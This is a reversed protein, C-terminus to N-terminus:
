NDQMDVRWADSESVFGIGERQQGGEVMPADITETREWDTPTHRLRPLLLLKALRVGAVLCRIFENPADRVLDFELAIFLQVVRRNAPYLQVPRRGLCSCHEPM